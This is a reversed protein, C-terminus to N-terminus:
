GCLSAPKRVPTGAGIPAPSANRGIYRHIALPTGSNALGMATLTQITTIAKRIIELRGVSLQDRM